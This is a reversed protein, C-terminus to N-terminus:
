GGRAAIAYTDSDSSADISDLGLNTSIRAISIASVVPEGTTGTLTLNLTGDSVAVDFSKQVGIGPGGALAVPDLGRLAGDEAVADFVRGGPGVAPSPEALVLSVRYRGVPLPVAWSANGQRITTAVENSVGPIQSVVPTATRAAVGGTGTDLGWGDADGPGGADILAMVLGYRARFVLPFEGVTVRRQALAKFEDIWNLFVWRKGSILQPSPASITVGGGALAVVTASGRGTVDGATVDAAIGVSLVTLTAKLSDLVITSSSALGTSGTVTLEIELKFDPEHGPASFTISPGSGLGGVVGPHTHCNVTNPQCHLGNIEWHYGSAPMPQNDFVDATLQIDQGVVWPQGHTSSDISRIVPPVDGISITISTVDSLGGQDTAKLSVVTTATFTTSASIGTADDFLGDGNLDWTFTSPDGVNGDTSLHADLTVALPAPGAVTSSSIVANPAVNTGLIRLAYIEGSSIDSWMVSGDPTRAVDVVGTGVVLTNLRTLDPNGQADLPAAYLCASGYDGFVYAMGSPGILDAPWNTAITFVGGIVAASGTRCGGLSASHSMAALPKTYPSIATKTGITSAKGADAEAYLKECMNNNLADWTPQRASGEYCPWGFNPVKQGAGVTATDIEEYDNWGVDGIYVQNTGPKFSFRFPNRLGFAVIRDDGPVGNNVLPNDPPALGTTKDMRLLAGNLPTYHDTTVTSRAGQSRLAGGEGTGPLNATGRYGPADNCPNAPILANAPTPWKGGNQGYDAGGFSAGEGVTSYLRGDAGFDLHDVNHSPSQFCFGANADNQLLVQEPGGTGDARLQFRSIRATVICGDSGPGTAPGPCGDGGAGTGWRPIPSNPNPDFPDHDYTYLVYIYPSNAWDPDIAVGLLGRDWFDHAELRVDAVVVPTRDRPGDFLKVIGAREGVILRGDPLSRVAIPETLGTLLTEIVFNTNQVPPPGALALETGIPLGLPKVPVWLQVVATVAVIGLAKRWRRRGEVHEVM